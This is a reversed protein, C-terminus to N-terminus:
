NDKNQHLGLVGGYTRQQPKASSTMASVALSTLLGSIAGAPVLAALMLDGRTDGTSMGKPALLILIIALSEIAGALAGFLWGRRKLSLFLGLVFGAVLGLVGGFIAAIPAWDQSSGLFGSSPDTYVFIWWDFAYFAATILAGSLMGVVVGSTKPRTTMTM